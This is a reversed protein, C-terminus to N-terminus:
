ADEGANELGERHYAEWVMAEYEVAWWGAMRMKGEGEQSGLDRSIVELAGMRFDETVTALGELVDTDRTDTGAVLAGLGYHRRLGRAEKQAGAAWVLSNLLLALAVDGPAGYEALRSFYNTRVLCAASPESARLEDREIGLADALRYLAEVRSKQQAARSHFFLMEGESRAKAVYLNLNSLDNLAAHYHNTHVFRIGELPFSGDLVADVFPGGEVQQLLPEVDQELGAVFARAAELEGIATQAVRSM